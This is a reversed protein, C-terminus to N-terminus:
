VTKSQYLFLHAIDVRGADLAQRHRLEFENFTDDGIAARHKLLLAVLNFHGNAEAADLADSLRGAHNPVEYWLRCGMGGTLLYEAVDLHGKQCAVKLATGGINATDSHIDTGARVLIRVRELLGKEAALVLTKGKSVETLLDLAVMQQVVECPVSTPVACSVLAERDDWSLGGLDRVRLHLIFQFIDYNFDNRCISAEVPSFQCKMGKHLIAGYQLLLEIMAIDSWYCAAALSTWLQVDNKDEEERYQIHPMGSESWKRHLLRTCSNPNGRAELLLKAMDHSGRFIAAILPSDRNEQDVLAGRRLLFACMEPDQGYAAHYLASCVGRSDNVDAGAHLVTRVTGISGSIVAAQLVTTDNGSQYDDVRAGMQLLLEVLEQSGLLAAAQLCTLGKVATQAHIDGGRQVLLRFLSTDGNLSATQLAPLLSYSCPTKNVDVGDETLTCVLEYDNIEVAAQLATGDLHWDRAFSYINVAPQSLAEFIECIKGAAVRGPYQPRANKWSRAVRWWRLMHIHVTRWQYVPCLRPNEGKPHSTMPWDTTAGANLLCRAMDFNHHGMAFMLPSILALSIGDPIHGNEAVCSNRLLLGRADDCVLNPDAGAGLLLTAMDRDNRIAAQQIPTFWMRGAFNVPAGAELLLKASATTRAYLLISHSISMHPIDAGSELLSRVIRDSNNSKLAQIIPLEYDFSSRTTNAGNKLLLDVMPGDVNNIAVPLARDLYRSSFRPGRANRLLLQLLDLDGIEVASPLLYISAAEVTLGGLAIADKILRLYNNDTAWKLLIHMCEASVLKNSGAYFIWQLLLSDCDEKVPHRQNGHLRPLATALHSLLSPLETFKQEDSSM